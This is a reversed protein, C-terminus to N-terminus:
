KFFLIIFFNIIYSVEIFTTISELRKEFAEVHSENINLNYRNNFFFSFDNYQRTVNFIVQEMKQISQKICENYDKNINETQIIYNQIQEPQIVKNSNKCTIRVKNILNSFISEKSRLINLEKKLEDIQSRKKDIFAIKAV